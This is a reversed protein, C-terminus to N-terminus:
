NTKLGVYESNVKAGRRQKRYAYPGHWAGGNM